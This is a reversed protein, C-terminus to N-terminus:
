ELLSNDEGLQSIHLMKNLLNLLIAVNGICVVGSIVGQANVQKFHTFKVAPFFLQGKGSLEVIVINSLPQNLTFGQPIIDILM